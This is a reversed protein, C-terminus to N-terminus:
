TENTEEGLMLNVKIIGGKQKKIYFEIGADRLLQRLDSITTVKKM